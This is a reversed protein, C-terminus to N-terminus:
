SAKLADLCDVTVGRDGGLQQLVLPVEDEESARWRDALDTLRRSLSKTRHGQKRSKHAVFM